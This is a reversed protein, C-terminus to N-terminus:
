PSAPRGGPRLRRLFRGAQLAKVRTFFLARRAWAFETGLVALGALVIVIGPGPLVLLVLGVLVLLTGAVAVLVRRASRKVTELVEGSESRENM